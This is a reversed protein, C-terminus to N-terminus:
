NKKEDIDFNKELYSESLKNLSNIMNNIAPKEEVVEIMPHSRLITDLLTTGSIPFGFM